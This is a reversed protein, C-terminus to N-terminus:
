VCIEYQTEEIKSRFSTLHGGLDLQNDKSSIGFAM